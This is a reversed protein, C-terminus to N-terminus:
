KWTSNITYLLFLNRYIWMKGGHILLRLHLHLSFLAIRIDVHLSVSDKKVKSIKKAKLPGDKMAEFDGYFCLEPKAIIQTSQREVSRM